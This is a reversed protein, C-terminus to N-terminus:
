FLMSLNKPRENYLRTVSNRRCRDIWRFLGSGEAFCRGSGEETRNHIDCLLLPCQWFVLQHDSSAWDRFNFKNFHNYIPQFGM